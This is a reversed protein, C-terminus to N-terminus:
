RVIRLVRLHGVVSLSSCNRWWCSQAVRCVPTRTSTCSPRMSRGMQDRGPGSMEIKPIRSRGASRDLGLFSKSTVIGASILSSFWPFLEEACGVGLYFPHSTVIFLKLYCKKLESLINCIGFFCSLGSGCDTQM